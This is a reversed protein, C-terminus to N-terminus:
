IYLGVVLLDIEVDTVIMDAYTVLFFLLDCSILKKKFIYGIAM